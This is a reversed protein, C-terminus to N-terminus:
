PNQSEDTDTENEPVEENELKLDYPLNFSYGSCINFSVCPYIIYGFINAEIIKPINELCVIDLFDSTAFIVFKLFSRYQYLWNLLNKDLGLSYGHVTEPSKWLRGYQISSDYLRQSNECMMLSLERRMDIMFIGYKGDNENCMLWDKLSRIHKEVNKHFSVEFNVYSSNSIKNMICHSYMEFSEGCTEVNKRFEELRRMSIGDNKSFDSGKKTEKTATVRFHEIFSFDSIFDPFESAQPNACVSCLIKLFIAIDLFSLGYCYLRFEHRIYQYFHISLDEVSMKLIEDKCGNFDCFVFNIVADLCQKEMDGRM